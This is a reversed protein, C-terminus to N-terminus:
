VVPVAFRLTENPALFFSQAHQTQVCPTPLHNASLHLAQEDAQTLNLPFITFRIRPAAQSIHWGSLRLAGSIYIYSRSLAIHIKNFALTGYPSGYNQM